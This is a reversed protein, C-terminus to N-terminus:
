KREPPPPNKPAPNRDLDLHFRHIFRHIVPAFLIGASVLFVIGAYLAYFSAFLKGATTRPDNVPGMGGLLMAANVLADIWSLDELLHYGLIGLALSGLVIGSAIGAHRLERRIFRARPLLPQNRREYM